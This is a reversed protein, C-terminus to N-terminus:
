AASAERTGVPAFNVQVQEAVGGQDSVNVTGQVSILRMDGIVWRCGVRVEVPAIAGPILQDIDPAHVPSLQGSLYLPMQALDDLRTQAASNASATDGISSENFAREVLGIEAGVGGAVGVVTPDGAQDTRGGLVVVRSATADGSGTLEPNRLTDNTIPPLQLAPVEEGGTLISRGIATFDLGTTALERLADAARTQKRPDVTRTGRVGTPSPALTINPSPDQALADSAFQAFIVGLDDTMNRVWPLLRREFWQFLDRASLSVGTSTWKPQLLPGAWIDKGGREVVLEHAWAEVNAAAWALPHDPRSIPVEASASSVEDLQRAWSISKWPLATIVEGGRAALYLKYDAPGLSM